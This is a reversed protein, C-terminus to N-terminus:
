RTFDSFYMCEGMIANAQFINTGLGAYLATATKIADPGITPFLQSIYQPIQVTDATSQNVFITGEFANTVSLLFRQVIAVKM